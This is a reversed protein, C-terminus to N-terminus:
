QKALFAHPDIGETRWVDHVVRYWDPDPVNLRERVATLQMPLLETISQEVIRPCLRGHRQAEVLARLIPARTRLKLKMLLTGAWAVALHGPSPRQHYLYALVCQEG